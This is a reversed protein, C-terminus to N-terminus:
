LEQDLGERVLGLFQKYKRLLVGFDTIFVVFTQSLLLSFEPTKGYFTAKLGGKIQSRRCMSGRRALSRGATAAAFDEGGAAPGRRNPLWRKRLRWDTQRKRGGYQSHERFLYANKLHPALACIYLLIDINTTQHYKSGKMLSCHRNQLMVQFRPHKASVETKQSCSRSQKGTTHRYKLTAAFLYHTIKESM